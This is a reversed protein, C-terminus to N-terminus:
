YHLLKFLVKHVLARNAYWRSRTYNDWREAYDLFPQQNTLTHMVRLQVIHLRHYFPSAIMRMHGPRSLDYLSWFRMDFLSLSRVLTDGCSDWLSYAEGDGTTLAYDRVGWLAWIFGNLIHTPPHLIYEELWIHGDTDTYTVGGQDIPLLFSRFAAVAADMYSAQGTEAHARVLVSIGQGQALASYWPSKLVDRYEWDFHHNWVPVDWPNIEMHEVLWDAVRLFKQLRGQSGTRKWLNYNGLGYQAIAIPNYQVGIKGRYDLLPIGNEDYPGPYDAKRTFPMYYQGLSGTEAQGNVEPTGHWFTLQSRGGLVYAAFVRRYYAWRSRRPRQIVNQAERTRM